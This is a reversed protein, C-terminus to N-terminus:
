VRPGIVYESQVSETIDMSVLDEVLDARSQFTVKPDDCWLSVNKRETQKCKTVSWGRGLILCPLRLMEELWTALAREM